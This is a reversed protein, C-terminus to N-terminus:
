LVFQGAVLMTMSITMGIIYFVRKAMREERDM